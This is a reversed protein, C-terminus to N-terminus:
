RLHNTRPGIAFDFLWLSNIVTRKLGLAVTKEAGFNEARNFVILAQTTLVLAELVATYNTLLTTNLNRQRFDTTLSHAVNLKGARDRMNPKQLRQWRADAQQQIHRQSVYLTNQVKFGIDDRIGTQRCEIM